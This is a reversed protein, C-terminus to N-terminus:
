FTYVRHALLRTEHDLEYTYYYQSHTSDVLIM